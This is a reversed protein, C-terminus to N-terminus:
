ITEICILVIQLIFEKDEKFYALYGNYKDVVRQMSKMGYGHLDEEKTSQLTGSHIWLM